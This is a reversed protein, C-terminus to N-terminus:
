DSQDQQPSGSTGAARKGPPSSVIARYAAATEAAAIEWTYCRIIKGMLSPNRAAAARGIAARISDPSAPDCYWADNGFYERTDGKETIVISCGMAAAELSSLGTTEFWSPLVHVRAMKYFRVLAEQSVPEVFHINSGAILRCEKYYAPQNPSASGILYLTYGTGNVAKILALQNKVGEIRGACLVVKPDRDKEDIPAVFLKKDVANPIVRYNQRVGYRAILRDYESHSNPLLCQAHRIIYKVSRRHGWFLYRPSVIQEGSSIRRALVKLYEIGDASLFRFLIRAIGKRFRADFERYDVFITSIVYPKGSRFIHRLIDAPRIINFFHILDYPSYDIEEKSLRVDVQIGTLRLYEATRAIQVTDGGPGTFLTSRSIFLVKM